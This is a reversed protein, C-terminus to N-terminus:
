KGDLARQETETLQQRQEDSLSGAGVIQFASNSNYSRQDKKERPQQKHTPVPSGDGGGYGIVEVIIISPQETPQGAQPAAAEQAAAGAASTAETLGGIDPAKIQPVGKSKGGVEINSANVVHLAALNLNGSVRIGADGANVTGVPAILHVDGEEVGSFGIITGIGSGAIDAKELVRTVTDFDTVIEPASPVRATKAGRGADIDGLTSWIIEDGGGFTLVRSRNVTVSDHAFININGFGLTVLGYGPPVATGLAAIQLGGGPTIVEIDGGAMTRFFANGITVDGKWTKGPFLTAIAAYGRNYGGNRPLGGVGPENQDIGAERLEQMYVQRLFREQTFQPLTQFRAWADLPALTEGTMDKVFSVLGNRTLHQGGKERPEFADILYLPVITGDPLTTKLYDPMASVKAPDLYAAVFADYSPQKGNLGAMVTITAGQEPLGIIESGPIPRNSANYSRNGRSFLTMETGYVDRGASLVLAGPGQIEIQGGPRSNGGTIPTVDGTGGIIDNGAELLSVDTPRVNRLNYYINRIDTGARFWTQENTTIFAGANMFRPYQSGIISGSLAYIRSPEDDNANPLWDRSMVITGPSVDKAALIRLEPDSSPLTLLTNNFVSGNLAAIRTKSPYLNGAANNVNEYSFAIGACCNDPYSLDKSLFKAQGVLVVDGGTSTLSLQSRETHGSMVSLGVRLPDLMTQLVLDGATTVDLTADGLSLIPAIPYSTTRGFRTTKVERGVAFEGAEISGAGRGVYYYGALVAGGAEVTMAGGNRLELLKREQPTRGGRVRGNTPLAVTLNVLDGGAGVEVNGGGLAGVGRQFNAYDIWWSSQATQRNLWETYHQMTSRDTPLAVDIDGGVAIQVHGGGVGYTAGAPATTFDDFVTLDRRGATYISAGGNLQLDGSAVINIDGTGTRVMTSPYVTGGSSGPPVSSYLLAIANLNPKIKTDYFEAFNGFRTVVSLRPGFGSIATTHWRFGVGETLSKAAAYENWLNLVYAYAKDEPVGFTVLASSEDNLRAGAATRLAAIWQDPNGTAGSPAGSVSFTGDDVFGTAVVTGLSDIYSYGPQESLIIRGASGAALRAPDASEGRPAAGAVLTQSWSSVAATSGDAKTISPFQVSYTLANGTNAAPSNSAASYPAQAIQPPTSKNETVRVTGSSSNGKYFAIGAYATPLGTATGNFATLTATTSSRGGNILATLNNSITGKVALYTPDLPDAYQFFGDTISGKLILDGEARLTLVGPEGLISGGTRYVMTTHDRLLQGEKGAVVYAAGSLAPLPTMVGAAVASAQDVIGAGLNWHSKLVIDGAYDLEMGPRAHFNDQATLGGLAGYSGSIDFDRVFEVLTGAGYDALVNLKGAAKAALDLEVQGSGNITVGVYDPNSALNALDFRKYGELVIERAGAITGAFAVNVTDAGSQEVLPARLTVKGGEGGAVDILGGQINLTGGSIGLTVRGSGLHDVTDTAGARLVATSTMTLGNGAYIAIAGGYTARADITGAITVSGHDAVLRFERVTTVGDVTVSGSRIRFDRSQSFGAANLRQNFAAFDPLSAIDLAFSAGRHGAAAQAKITGDLAVSGGDSTVALTGAGGGSPHASLDLVAGAGLRVSGGGLATLAIRGANTYEAVDFFQKAFGGVDIRAGDALIVDGNTATLEVAGGLADIRGGFAIASGSLSWRTGLSSLDRAPAEGVAAVVLAGQTTVSQTAGGRGTLLPATLTLAASGADLTGNGEGVIRTTGTFAVTDFGRLAKAGQGFVLEGASLNLSGHGAGVPEAFTSATNELVLRNGVVTIDATGYGVLAAADFTVATLGSLDVADHFDISTYSRLTLHQTNGLAALAAADIVLGSGGGFGIRGSALSLAAGSLHAEGVVADRTADILLAKGGALVAGAGITVRGGVTTDVNERRVRVADGNSVRVLAGWDRSPTQVFDDDPNTPTGNKNIVEAVQPAMVLDGAGTPAEGEALIVSGAAIDITESAALIIESGRLASGPGNRVVIDNATVDVKLGRIDGARTGGLLLSGAGFASLNGADVVLYGDARLTGADEGAGLIAIKEAAIDVLGGRGGAAAQSRLQGNLILDQTAKFVVSGGDIPLRPTVVQQGTLRYQTQRFAESAFFTNAFAENYESYKRIVAGSMIRWSSPLQDRSGDYANARYGAMVVSGDTLTSPKVAAAGQSGSVMQVAYAGPLLAYHAPLLTYWGAALGNGGDLWVRDAGAVGSLAPMIAFMGPRALVDHSGGPGPVHEWAYLDGGGSIDVVSGTALDVRPAELTIRREPPSAIVTPVATSNTPITWNENNALNGYPLVLGDGSVSTVSGAGLTVKDTAKLVIQGFPAKLTGGQEIVPADLTLVGGVSLAPGAVGKQEVIIKEGAKITASVQSAPYVQAARLILTGDVDIRASQTGSNYPVFRIDGADLVTQAFGRIGSQKVDILSAALTLTGARAISGAAAAGHLSIYAASLRSDTGDANILGGAISISGGLTLDVGDLRISSGSTLALDAFGASHLLSPRFILGPQATATESLILLRDTGSELSVSGGRAGDGGAYGLWTGEILGQSVGVLDGVAITGGDSALTIPTYPSGLALGERPVDIEASAGSVDILSGSMMTLTPADITVTGGRLVTGSRLGGYAQILPVGRAVLAATDAVVITGGSSHLRITGGPAELRGAIHLGSAAGSGTELAIRGGVDTEIAAGEGVTVANAILKLSTPDLEARQALDIVTLAGMDRVATGSAFRSVDVGRLDVTPSLQLVKVGGPVTISSAAIEVSRFGRDTFLTEPLRVTDADVPDAGGIQLAGQTNVILSGGSGASYARLDVELLERADISRLTITGADGVQLTPKGLQQYWGGGSVDIIAGLAFEANDVDVSGGNVVPPSVRTPDLVSNVWEGRVDIAGGSGFSVKEAQLLKVSGGPARIVGDIKFEQSDNDGANAAVLLSSGPTLELTTGNEVAFSTSLYLNINGLGSSGLASADLYTTREAIGNPRITGSYWFPDLPTRATFEPALQVPNDSVILQDLQWSRDSNDPGGFTLTGAKALKGSAAQREGTIVGGWYSGELVVGEAAYFQISGANRGEAYGKEFRGRTGNSQLPNTWTKTVGWREHVRAFQGAVGVYIRDPTAQSIDYVRGDAGLLKTTNVWGDQYRVSGGSVDLLSGARTIVSGASKIIISGGLQQKEGNPMKVEIGAMTSLEALTIKGVGVWAAVDALPTGIWAGPIYNGDKDTVWNVGSMTGDSFVGSERRDVYVKLGRLWSERLLPSDRLENIRLEAEIVNREMAVLVDQLGGVSLYADEGIYIRSGDRLQEAVLGPEEGAWPNKSAVVSITGAPVIVSAQAEINILDGRLEVRGPRYRLALSTLEIESTDSLDPMVATVSGPALTLTGTSWPRMTHLECGNGYCPIGQGWAQLRISGERNNLATSALLAGNQVIERGAITIDGREAEAFGNNVVRYGVSAARAEMENRIITQFGIGQPTSDTLHNRTYAWPMPASVVVDLGRVTFIPNDPDPQEIASPKLYVQEGAAMIIQGDPASIAGSNIVHPAFLMVKGGSATTIQAGAQVTVDGPPAGIQTRPVQGPDNLGLSDVPRPQGLYGFQPLSYSGSDGGGPEGYGIDRPNSIGLMFQPNSLSLSSAVITGVNVQSAGGFIVGNRNIVYVQGEAKISGLM